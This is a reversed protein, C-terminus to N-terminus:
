ADLMDVMKAITNLNRGTMDTGGIVKDMKGALRSRGIGDPAFLWVVRGATRVDENQSKLLGIMATDLVPDDFCFFGHVAKGSDIPFPCSALAARLTQEDLVLVRVDFGFDDRIGAALAVAIDEARGDANFLLNGSAIYSKVDPDGTVGSCIRRLDAMPLKRHGGVNIGRLFAVFKTM